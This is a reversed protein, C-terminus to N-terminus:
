DDHRILEILNKIPYEGNSSYWNELFRSEFETEAIIQLENKKNISAKM